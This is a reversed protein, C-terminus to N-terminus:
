HRIAIAKQRRCHAKQKKRENERWLSKQTKTFVRKKNEPAIEFKLLDHIIAERSLEVPLDVYKRVETSDVVIVSVGERVLAAKIMELRPAGPPSILVVIEDM